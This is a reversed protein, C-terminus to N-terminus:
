LVDLITSTERSHLKALHINGRKGPLYINKDAACQLGRSKNIDSVHKPASIDHTEIQDKNM